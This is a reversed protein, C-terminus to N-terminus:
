GRQAVSFLTEMRIPAPIDGIAGSRLHIAEPIAAIARVHALNCPILAFPPAHDM